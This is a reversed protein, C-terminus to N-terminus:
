PWIQIIQYQNPVEEPRVEKALAASGTSLVPLQPSLWDIKSHHTHGHLLLNLSPGLVDKLKEVDRLNEDDDKAGRLANQDVVGLRFVGGARAEGLKKAFSRLQEEGVWGFHGYAKAEILEKYLPHNEPIDHIESVTSNLGAVVLKLGPRFDYWTWYEEVTFRP